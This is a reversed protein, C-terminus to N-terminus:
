KVVEIEMLCSMGIGFSKDGRLKKDIFSFIGIESNQPLKHALHGEYQTIRKNGVGGQTKVRLLTSTDAALLIKIAKKRFGTDKAYLKKAERALDASERKAELKKKREIAGIKNHIQAKRMRVYKDLAAKM